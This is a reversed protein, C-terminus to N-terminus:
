YKQQFDSIQKQNLKHDVYADTKSVPLLTEAQEKCNKVLRADDRYAEREWPRPDGHEANHSSYKQGKWIIERKSNVILEGKAYQKVHIMEHALVLRQLFKPQRADLYVKINLYRVDNRFNAGNVCTTLGAYNEPMTQPFIVALRVNERIDLLELYQEVQKGVAVSDTSGIVKVIPQSFVVNMWFICGVTLVVKQMPTSSPKHNQIGRPTSLCLPGITTVPFYIGAVFLLYKKM